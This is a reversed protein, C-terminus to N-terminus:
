PRDVVLTIARGGDSFRVDACCSRILFVGRGGQRLLNEESLPDPLREPDFGHGQDTVTIELRNDFLEAVLRVVKAPDQKNGHFIANTVAENLALLLGASTDEDLGAQVALRDVVEELRGLSDVESPLELELVQIM